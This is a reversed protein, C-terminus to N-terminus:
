QHGLIWSLDEEIHKLKKWSISRPPRQFGVLSNRSTPWKHHLIKASIKLELKLHTNQTTWMLSVHKFIHHRYCKIFPRYCRRPYGPLIGSAVHYQLLPWQTIKWSCTCSDWGCGWHFSWCLFDFFICCIEPLLFECTYFLYPSWKCLKIIISPYTLHQRIIKM